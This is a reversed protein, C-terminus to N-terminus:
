RSPTRVACSFCRSRTSGTSCRSSRAWVERRSHRAPCRESRTRCSRSTWATPWVTAMATRTSRIAATPRRSRTPCVTTTTTRIPTTASATATTTPGSAQISRSHMARTRSATPTTTPIPTTASATGTPTSRRARTSPCRTQATPSAMATRTPQARTREGPASRASHVGDLDGDVGVVKAFFVEDLLPGLYDTAPELITGDPQPGYGYDRLSTIFPNAVYDLHYDDFGVFFYRIIDAPDFATAGREARPENSDAQAWPAGAANEKCKIFAGDGCGGSEDGRFWGFGFFAEREALPVLVEAMQQEWMGGPALFSELAYGVARDNGSLPAQAVGTPLYIVGDRDPEGAFNSFVGRAGLGHGKAQQATEPRWAGSGPPYEGQPITGHITHGSGADLLSGSPLWSHYGGHAQTLVAELTGFGGTKRIAVVAEELDNEHESAEDVLFGHEDLERFGDSFAGDSWDRPHFFGYTIFWHTCTEAVSYYVSAAVPPLVGLSDWNDRGDWNGDFDFATVYDSRPSDDDTDQYHIPAWRQAVEEATAAFAAGPALGVVLLLLTRLPLKPNVLIEKRRAQV